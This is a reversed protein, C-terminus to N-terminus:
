QVIKLRISHMSSLRRLFNQAHEIKKEFNHRINRIYIYLHLTSFIFMETNQPLIKGLNRSNETKGINYNQNVEKRQIIIWFYGWIMSFPYDFLCHGKNEKIPFCVIDRVRKVFQAKHRFQWELNWLISTTLIKFQKKLLIICKRVAWPIIIRCYMNAIRRSFM